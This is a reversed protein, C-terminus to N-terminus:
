SGLDFAPRLGVSKNELYDRLDALDDTAPLDAHLAEWTARRFGVRSDPRLYRGVTEEIEPADKRRVLAVVTARPRLRSAVAVNRLIQEPFAGTQDAALADTFVGPSKTYRTIWRALKDPKGRLHPAPSGLKAEIFLWGADPSHLVIDPETQRALDGELENLAKELEPTPETDSELIRPGLPDAGAGRSM